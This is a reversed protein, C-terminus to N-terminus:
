ISMPFEGIQRTDAWKASGLDKQYRDLQIARGAQSYCGCRPMNVVWSVLMRGAMQTTAM